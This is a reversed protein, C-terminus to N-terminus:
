YMLMMNSIDRKNPDHKFAHFDQKIYNIQNVLFHVILHMSINTM